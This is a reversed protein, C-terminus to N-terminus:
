QYLTVICPVMFIFFFSMKIIDSYLCFFNQLIPNSYFYGWSWRVNSNFTIYVYTLWFTLICLPYKSTKFRKRWLLMEKSLVSFHGLKVNLWGSPETVQQLTNGTFTHRRFQIRSKTFLVVTLCIKASRCCKIFQSWWSEEESSQLSSLWKNSNLVCEYMWENMGNAHASHSSEKGNEPVEKM